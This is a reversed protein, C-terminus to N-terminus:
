SQLCKLWEYKAILWIPTVNEQIYKFSYNLEILDTQKVSDMEWFCHPKPYYEWGEHKIHASKMHEDTTSADNQSPLM